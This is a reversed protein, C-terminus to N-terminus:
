SEQKPTVITPASDTTPAPAAALSPAAPLDHAVSASPKVEGHVGNPLTQPPQSESKPHEIVVPKFFNTISPKKPPLSPRPDVAKVAQLDHPNQNEKMPLQPPADAVKIVKVEAPKVPGELPLSPEAHPEAISPAAPSKPPPASQEPAKKQYRLQVVLTPDPSVPGYSDNVIVDDDSMDDDDGEAEDDKMDVDPDDDDGAYEEAGSSAADEEDEIEDISNYGEIHDGGGGGRASLEQRLASRRSRGIAQEPGEGNALTETGDSAGAAGHGSLITEGYAGGHRSKVQRGSATFTPGEPEAPTSIGSHRTSRRNTTAADSEEDEDSSFTYRIKKGRTRGEYM